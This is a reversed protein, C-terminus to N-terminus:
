LIAVETTKEARSGARRTSLKRASLRRAIKRWRDPAVDEARADPSVGAAQLAERVREKPAIAGLNSALKKRPHAFGARAIKFFREEEARSSFPKTLTPVALIASDVRPPPAFSGAPVSRVYRPAGYIKVALSLLSEKKSRAIREAVERQLLLVVAAPKRPASFFRRIVFGTLAYPINAVLKYPGRPIRSLPFARIDGRILALRGDAIERSFREAIKTALHPDKEVAVVHAGRALLERTLAGKGPGIELITDREGVDGAEVIAQLAPLSTLFHQGLPPAM